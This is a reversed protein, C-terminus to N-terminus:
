ICTHIYYHPAPGPLSLNLKQHLCQKNLQNIELLFSPTSTSTNASCPLLKRKLGPRSLRLDQERVPVCAKMIAFPTAALLAGLGLLVGLDGAIVSGSLASLPFNPQETQVSTDSQQHSGTGRGQEGLLPAM